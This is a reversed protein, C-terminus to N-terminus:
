KCIVKKYRCVSWAQFGQRDFKGKAAQLNYELDYMEAPCIRGQVNVQLFGCDVSWAKAEDGKKCAMSEGNYICNYGKNGSNQGSEASAIKMFTDTHNGFVDRVRDELTPEKAEAEKVVPNAIPTERPEILFINQIKFSYTSHWQAYDLTGKILLLLIFGITLSYGILQIKNKMNTNTLSSNDM